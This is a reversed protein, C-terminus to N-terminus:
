RERRDVKAGTAMAGNFVDQWRSQAFRSSKYVRPLAELDHELPKFHRRYCGSSEGGMYDLFSRAEAALAVSHHQGDLCAGELGQHSTRPLQLWCVKCGLLSGAIRAKRSQNNYTTGGKGKLIDITRQGESLYLTLMRICKWLRRHIFTSWIGTRGSCRDLPSSSFEVSSSYRAGMATNKRVLAWYITCGLWQKRDM